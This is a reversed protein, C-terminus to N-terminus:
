VLEPDRNSSVQLLPDLIFYCRHKYGNKHEVIFSFIISYSIFVNPVEKQTAISCVGQEDPSVYLTGDPAVHVNPHNCDFVKKWTDQPAIKLSNFSRGVNKAKCCLLSLERAKYYEVHDELVLSISIKTNAQIAPFEYNGLSVFNDISIPKYPTGLDLYCEQIAIEVDKLTIPFKISPIPDGFASLDIKIYM